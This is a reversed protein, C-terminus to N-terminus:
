IKEERELARAYMICKENLLNIQDFIYKSVVEQRFLGM